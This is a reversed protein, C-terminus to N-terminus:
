GELKNHVRDLISKCHDRTIREHLSPVGLYRGLDTMEPIGTLTAFRCVKERCVKNSNFVNSKLKNIRQGSAKCFRDLCDMVIEM